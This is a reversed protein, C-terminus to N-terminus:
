FSEAELDTNASIVSASSERAESFPFPKTIQAQGQDSVRPDAHKAGAVCKSLENVVIPDAPTETVRKDAYQM